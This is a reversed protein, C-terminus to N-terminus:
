DGGPRSGLHLAIVFGQLVLAALMWLGARMLIIVSHQWGIGDWGERATSMATWIAGLMCGAVLIQALLALLRALSFEPIEKERNQQRM